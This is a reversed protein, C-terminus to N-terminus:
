HHCCQWENNTLSPGYYELCSPPMWGGVFWASAMITFDYHKIRSLAYQSKVYSISRKLRLIQKIFSPWSTSALFYTYYLQDRNGPSTGLPTDHHPVRINTPQSAAPSSDSNEAISEPISIPKQAEVDQKRVQLFYLRFKKSEFSFFLCIGAPKDSGCRFCILVHRIGIGLVAHWMYYYSGPCQGWSVFRRSWSPRTGVPSCRPRLLNNAVGVSNDHFHLAPNFVHYFVYTSWVM